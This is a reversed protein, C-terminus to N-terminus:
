KEEALRKARKVDQWIEALRKAREVDRLVLWCPRQFSAKPTGHLLAALQCFASGKTTSIDRGFLHLLRHAQEAAVLRKQVKPRFPPPESRTAANARKLWVTLWRATEERGVTVSGDDVISCTPPFVSGLYEPLDPDALIEQLRAITNRLRKAARKAQVTQSQVARRLDADTTKIEALAVHVANACEVRRHEDPGILAVARTVTDTRASIV